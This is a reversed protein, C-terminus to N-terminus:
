DMGLIEESAALAYKLVLRQTAQYTSDDMRTIPASVSISFIAKGGLGAIPAAVCRLGPCFIQDDFAYGDQRIKQMLALFENYSTGLDEAHNQYVYQLESDDLEALLVMGLGTKHAPYSANLEFSPRLVHQCDIRHIYTIEDCNLIGLNVTEGTERGLAEMHKVVIRQCADLYGLKSTLFIFKPGLRYKKNEKNQFLLGVFELTQVIRYVSSQPMDIQKALEKIGIEQQDNTFCDLIHLSKLLTSTFLNSNM